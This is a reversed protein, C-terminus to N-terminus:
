QYTEVQLSINVYNKDFFFTFVLFDANNRNLCLEVILLLFKFSKVFIEANQLLSNPSNSLFKYVFYFTNKKINCTTCKYIIHWTERYPIMGGNLKNQPKNETCEM